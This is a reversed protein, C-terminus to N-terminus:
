IFRTWALSVASEAAEKAKRPLKRKRQGKPMSSRNGTRHNLNGTLERLRFPIKIIELQFTRTKFKLVEGGYKRWNGTMYSFGVLVLVSALLGLHVSCRWRSCTRPFFSSGGGGEADDARAGPSFANSGPRHEHHMLM